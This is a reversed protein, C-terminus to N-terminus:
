AAGGKLQIKPQLHRDPLRSRLVRLQFLLGDTNMKEQIRAIAAPNFGDTQDALEVLLRNLRDLAKTMEPDSRKRADQRWSGNDLLLTRAEDRLAPMMEADEADTHKLEVLLRESRDLHDSLVVVVVQQRPPAAAHAVAPQVQRHEWLRGAHFAMALLACTTAAGIALWWGLKPGTSRHDPYLRLSPSLSRWVDEGYDEDRMPVHPDIMDALDAELAAYASACDGCHKLHLEAECEDEGYYREVLNEETLHEM